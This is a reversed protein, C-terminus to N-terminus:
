RPPPPAYKGPLHLRGGHVGVFARADAERAFAILSPQCRDYCLHLPQKAESVIPPHRLCPTEDSGDVLYAAAFRLPEKTAYDAVRIERVAAGSQEVYHLACRPCCAHITRGDELVLTSRVESHIERECVSCRPAGAPCAALAALLALVLGARFFSRASM